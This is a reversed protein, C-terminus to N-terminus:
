KPMNEQICYFFGIYHQKYVQQQAGHSCNTDPWSGKLFGDSKNEDARFFLYTLYPETNM